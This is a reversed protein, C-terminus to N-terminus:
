GKTLVLEYEELFTYEKKFQDVLLPSRDFQHVLAAVGSGGANLVRGLRDRRIENMQQVTAVFGEENSEVHVASAVAAVRGSHLFYNHVGQDIGNQECEPQRELQDAVLALYAAADDWSGMVTGSCSIVKGGVEALGAPGFCAEVWKSNWGCESITRPRQELFATLGRRAETHAFV